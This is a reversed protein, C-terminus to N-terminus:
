SCSFKNSFVPKSVLGPLTPYLSCLLLPSASEVVSVAAAPCCVVSPSLKCLILDTQQIVICYYVHCSASDVILLCVLRQFNLTKTIRVNDTTYTTLLVYVLFRYDPIDYLAIICNRKLRTSLETRSHMATQYM